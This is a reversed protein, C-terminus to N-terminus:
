SLQSWIDKEGVLNNFAGKLNVGEEEDDDELANAPSAERASAEVFSAPPCKHPSM